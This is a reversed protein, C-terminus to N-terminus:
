SIRDCTRAVTTESAECRLLEGPIGAGNIGSRWSVQQPNYTIVLRKKKVRYSIAFHRTGWKMVAILPTRVRM